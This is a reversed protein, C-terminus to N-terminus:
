DKYMNYQNMYHEYRENDGHEKAIRAKERASRAIEHRTAIGVHSDLNDIKELCGLDKNKWMLRIGKFSANKTANLLMSGSECGATDSVGKLIASATGTTLLVATGVTKGVAKGVKKVVGM